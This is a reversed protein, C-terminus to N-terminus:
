GVPPVLPNGTSTRDPELRDAEERAEEIEEELHELREAMEQPNPEPNSM